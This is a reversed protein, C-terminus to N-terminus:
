VVNQALPSIPLRHHAKPQMMPTVNPTMNLPITVEHNKDLVKHKESAPGWESTPQSLFRIKQLFLVFCFFCTKSIPM